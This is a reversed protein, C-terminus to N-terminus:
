TNRRLTDLSIRFHPMNTVQYTIGKIWFIKQKVRLCISDIGLSLLFIFVPTKTNSYCFVVSQTILFLLENRITRSDPFNLETDFHQCRHTDKHQTMRYLHLVIKILFGSNQYSVWKEFLSILGNKLISAKYSLWKKYLGFEWCQQVPIWGTVYLSQPVFWLM